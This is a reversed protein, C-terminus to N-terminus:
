IQWLGKAKKILNMWENGEGGPAPGWAPGSMQLSPVRLLAATVAISCARAADLNYGGELFLAIRGLCYSESFTVLSQILKGYGEASLRLNGLPDSWHPDFGYSVLIMEPEFRHLLPLILEELVAQFARDGSFPPLPFNATTGLGAVEGTEELRGTGPYLPSQHTSIYFVEPRDYFINQTGNGHHLDLDIIALRRAGHEQILFQAAIAINNLVCFGMASSRTAHHGPPRTLAFGSRASGKWVEGAVACAGGAALHALEWTQPTTYTDIDYHEGRRCIRSLTSLYAPSHISNLVNEKVPLPLLQPYPQWWGVGDLADKIAEVREPREPHGPENHAQHGEPYFFVIEHM